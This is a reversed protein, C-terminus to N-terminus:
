FFLANPQWKLVLVATVNTAVRM